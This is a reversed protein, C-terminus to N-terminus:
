AMAIEVEQGRYEPRLYEKFFRHYYNADTGSLICRELYDIAKAPYLNVLKGDDNRIKDRERLVIGHEDCIRRLATGVRAYVNAKLKGKYPEFYMYKLVWPIDTVMAYEGKVGILARLNYNEKELAANRRAAAGLRGMISAERGSAIQSKTRLAEDREAKIRAITENAALVARAMLEEGTLEVPQPTGHRRVAPLVDHTIWRRFQKAEGKRSGMVLSYVGYENVVNRDPGGVSDAVGVTSKEDDDLRTLADRSNMIGLCDCVDKAVFWAEGDIIHVRVHGFNPNQYLQMNSM